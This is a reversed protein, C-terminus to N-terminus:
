RWWRARSRARPGACSTSFRLFSPARAPDHARGAARTRAGCRRLRDIAAQAGATRRRRRVDAVAAHASPLVHRPSLTAIETEDLKLKDNLYNLAIPELDFIGSIPLGGRFAPHQAAMATLHGGASWGGVFLRERDFGFEDAHESLFTLAQHMEAVIDTSACTRRWRIASSRSTSATRARATPSSPSCSRTTASGTAATSSCSCRRSRRTAASFLRAQARPRAGYPLDLLAEQSPASRTAASAALARPYEASDAVAESNNYAADLAARDMGRYIATSTTTDSMDVGAPELTRTPALHSTLRRAVDRRVANFEPSSVDRPRPLDIRIDSEIRGPGASMVLVRDALLVAEEVSHTVFIITM